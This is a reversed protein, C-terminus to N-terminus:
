PGALRVHRGPLGSRPERYFLSRRHNGRGSGPPCHCLGSGLPPEPSRHFDLGTEKAADMVAVLEAANMTVPKECVVHKGARLCRIAYDKHFNNPVALIVLEVSNDALLEEASHYATLGQERAKQAAEPRIDFAGTVRLEPM